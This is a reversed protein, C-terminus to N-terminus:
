YWLEFLLGKNWKQGGCYRLLFPTGSFLSTFPRIPHPSPPLHHSLSVSTAVERGGEKPRGRVPQYCRSGANRERERERERERKRERERCCAPLPLASRLRERATKGDKFHQQGFSLFPLSLFLSSFLLKEERRDLWNGSLSWSPWTGPSRFSSFHVLRWCWCEVYVFFCCCCCTSWLKIQNGIEESHCFQILTTKVSM